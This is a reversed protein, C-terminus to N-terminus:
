ALWLPPRHSSGGALPSPGPCLPGHSSERAHRSTGLWRLPDRPWRPTAAMAARGRATAPEIAHM